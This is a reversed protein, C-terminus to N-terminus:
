VACKKRKGAAERLMAVLRPATVQLSYTQEVVARGAAGMRRRLDADALLCSLAELWQDDTQALFGNEGHTVIKRNVGVPSAVVPKGCAMYQILKYGCKGREWPTDPLPMIGIDFTNVLAVESSESWPLVEYPVDAWKPDRAGVLRICAGESSCVKALPERVLGLYHTTAPSGIWGIIPVGDRVSDGLRAQLPFRALDVVTPMIEVRHAGARHAKEALYENGCVVVAAHRMVTDIKSGLWRRVWWNPHQDYRHFTADDYDVVYPTNGALAMKEVCGPLWPFCEYELWLLDFCRRKLQAKVRRAYASLVLHLGPRVGSYIARLYTDPLLPEVTIELGAERLYPLYQYGRVRSSAGLRGYRALYLVKM